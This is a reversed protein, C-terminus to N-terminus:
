FDISSLRVAYYVAGCSLVASHSENSYDCKLIEDMIVKIKLKLHCENELACPVKVPFSDFHVYFLVSFLLYFHNKKALFISLHQIHASM